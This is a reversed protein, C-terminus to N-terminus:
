VNFKHSKIKLTGNGGGDAAIAVQLQAVTTGTMNFSMGSAISGADFNDSWTVLYWTALRYHLSFKGTTFVTTGRIMEYEYIGSSHVASDITINLLNTFAQGETVIHRTQNFLGLASIELLTFGDANDNVQVLTSPSTKITLPLQMDFDTPDTADNLRIAGSVLYALRQIQGGLWDLAMEFDKLNFSGHNRFISPQTPADNALLLILTYDLPLNAALTVTGGGEVSDFDVVSLFVLDDGRVRQLENGDVDLEIVLLQGIEEIKFDFTYAALNGAGNYQQRPFYESRSM